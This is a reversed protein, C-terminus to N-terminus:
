QAGRFAQIGYRLARVIRRRDEALAANELEDRMRRVFAGRITREAAWDDLLEPAITDSEDRIELHHFGHAFRAQLEEAVLPFHLSGTLRVRVLSDADSLAEIRQEIEDVSECATLDVEEVHIRQIELPVQNVTARGDSIEVVTWYPVGPDDFGKGEQCGSYVVPTQGLTSTSPQHIHGLAVYDYAAAALETRDLPLSREDGGGLTGHFVALHFGDESLKPFDRLPREVPTVGGTYALSYVFIREDKLEFTCVHEATPNLVLRGPWEGRAQHYVSDAYTIEDHNGPTTVLEIGAASLRRLQALVHQILKSDPRHTEFLDGAIVVLDVRESLAFDVARTLLGDRRERRALARKTDLYAPEWGLHLDALHLFRLM